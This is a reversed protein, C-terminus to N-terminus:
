TKKSFPDEDVPVEVGHFYDEDHFLRPMKGFWPRTTIFGTLLGGILSIGLTM